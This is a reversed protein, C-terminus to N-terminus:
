RKRYQAPTISHWKKFARTFTAAETYGLKSAITEISEETTELLRCAKESRVTDLLQQFTVGEEKLQRRFSRESTSFTDACEAISPYGQRFMNLYKKVRDKLNHNEPQRRQKLLEDCQQQYLSLATPNANPLPQDLLTADFVFRAVESGFEVPCDFTTRYFEAEEPEPYPIAILKQGKPQGLMTQMMSLFQFTGAVDRDIIFRHLEDPVNYPHLVLAAQDDEVEFDLRSFLYSLEQYRIGLKIGEKVTSCSMLMMAFAGYAAIGFTSSLKMAALPDHRLQPYLEALVSLEDAQSIVASADIQAPNIGQRSLAASPDVGYNKHIQEATFSLALISRLTM